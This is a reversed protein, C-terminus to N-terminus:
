TTELCSKLWKETNEICDKQHNPDTFNTEQYVSIAKGFYFKAKKLISLSKYAIGINNYCHGLIEFEYAETALGTKLIGIAQYHVSISKIWDETHNLCSGYIQLFSACLQCKEKIDVDSAMQMIELIEDMLPFFEKIENEQNQTKLKVSVNQVNIGIDSLNVLLDKGECLNQSLDFQCKILPLICNTQKIEILNEILKDLNKYIKDFLNNFENTLYHVEFSKLLLYFKLLLLLLKM